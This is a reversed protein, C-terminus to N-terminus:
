EIIINVTRIVTDGRKIIIKGTGKETATVYFIGDLSLNGEVTIEFDSIGVPESILVFQRKEGSKVMITDGVEVGNGENTIDYLFLEKIEGGGYINLYLNQATQFGVENYTLQSMHFLKDGYAEAITTPRKQEKGDLTKYKIRPFNYYIEADTKLHRRFDSALFVNPYEKLAARYYALPVDTIFATRTPSWSPAYGLYEPVDIEGDGDIDHKAGEAFMNWLGDHWKILTDDDYPAKKQDFNGGNFNIMVTTNYEYHGAAVENKLIEMAMNMAEVSYRGWNEKADAQWENICSGGVGCNLLWVKDGTLRNWEYAFSSDVGKFGKVKGADVTHMDINEVRDAETYGLSSGVFDDRWDLNWKESSILLHTNYVQGAECLVTQDVNGGTGYGSSTGVVIAFLIPAPNVRVHHDKGNASIVCTGTGVAILRCTNEDYILVDTDSQDTGIVKSTVVQDKIELNDALGGFFVNVNIRDDYYMEIYEIEPEDPKPTESPKKPTTSPADPTACSSFTCMVIICSLVFALIKM